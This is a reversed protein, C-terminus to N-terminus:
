DEAEVLEGIQINTVRKNGNVMAVTIEYTSNPQLETFMSELVVLQQKGAGIATEFTHKKGTADTVTGAVCPLAWKGKTASEIHLIGFATKPDSSTLLSAKGVPLSIGGALRNTGEPLANLAQERGKSSVVDIRNAM